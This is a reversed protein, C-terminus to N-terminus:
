VAEGNKDLPCMKFVNMFLLGLTEGMQHNRQFSMQMGTELELPSVEPTFPQHEYENYGNQMGALSYSIYNKLYEIQSRNTIPLENENCEGYDLNILCFQM